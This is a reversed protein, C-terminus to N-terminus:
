SKNEITHNRYENELDELCREIAQRIYFSKPRATDKALATLRANLEPPITANISEYDKM